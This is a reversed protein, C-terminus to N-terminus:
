DLAGAYVGLLLVDSDNAVFVAYIKEQLSAHCIMHTLKTM